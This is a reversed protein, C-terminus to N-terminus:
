RGNDELKNSASFLKGSMIILQRARQRHLKTAQSQEGLTTYLLKNGRHALYCYMLNNKKYTTNKSVEKFDYKNFLSILNKFILNRNEQHEEMLFEEFLQDCNKFLTDMGILKERVVKGFLCQKTDLLSHCYICTQMPMSLLWSAEGINTSIQDLVPVASQVDKTPKLEVPTFEVPEPNRFKYKEIQGKMFLSIAQDSDDIVPTDDPFQFQDLYNNVQVLVPRGNFGRVIAQGTPLTRAFERQQKNLNMVDSFLRFSNQEELWHMIKVYTNAIAGSVLETPIQEAILISENFGRVEALINSFDESAQARANGTFESGGEGKASMLRHAEEILTIHHHKGSKSKQRSALYSTLSMLLFGMVLSSDETSGIRGIEMVTPHNLIEEWNPGDRVNLVNGANQLLDRIRIESGQRINGKAERGYEQTMQEATEVLLEYFRSLIPATTGPDGGKAIRLDKHGADQYTKRLAARYVAPLPDWMSFAASFARMLLSIHTRILVGDPVEFPNFRFPSTTDDGLTFVFLKDRINHDASLLRYDPKDIPYIVLFPINASRWLETLLHLCTNTKGSGTSGTVLGHRKLQSFSLLYDTETVIGRHIIKGLPIYIDNKIQSKQPTSLEAPMVFPEDRVSIGPMHGSEPPVPLRFAGVAEYSTVLNSLRWLPLNTSLRKWPRYELLEFNKVAIALEEDTSPIVESWLRPEPTSNNMIESGLAVVVDYPIYDSGLIQIKVEFLHKRQNIIPSFTSKIDEFRENRYFALWNNADAASVLLQKYHQMMRNIHKQEDLSLKTPRLGISAVCTQPQQTFTELFRSMASFDITPRFPHPFYGIFQESQEEESDGGSLMPDHDEYKRIEIFNRKSIGQSPIPNLALQLLLPESPQHKGDQSQTCTITRLPYNFPDELPFYSLFKGWLQKALSVAEEEDVHFVKGIFFIHLKNYPQGPQPVSVFRLEFTEFAGSKCSCLDNLFRIQRSVILKIRSVEGSIMRTFDDSLFSPMFPVYTVFFAHYGLDGLPSGSSTYCVDPGKCAIYPKIM